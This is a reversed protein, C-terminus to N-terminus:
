SGPPTKPAMKARYLDIIGSTGGAALLGTAARDVWEFGPVAEFGLAALLRVDFALALGIAFVIATQATWLDTAKEKWVKVLLGVFAALLFPQLLEGTLEPVLSM